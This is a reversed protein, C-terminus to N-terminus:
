LHSRPRDYFAQSGLYPNLPTQVLPPVPEAPSPKSPLVPSSMKPTESANQIFDTYPRLTSAVAMEVKSEKRVDPPYLTRNSAESPNRRMLCDSNNCGLLQIRLEFESVFRVDVALMDGWNESRLLRAVTKRATVKRKDAPARASMTQPIPPGTHARQAGFWSIV